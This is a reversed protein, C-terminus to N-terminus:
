LNSIISNAIVLKYSDEISADDKITKYYTKLEESTFIVAIKQDVTVKISSKFGYDCSYKDDAM